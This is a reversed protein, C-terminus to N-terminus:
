SRFITRLFPYKLETENDLTFILIMSQRNDDNYDTDKEVNDNADNYLTSEVQSLYFNQLTM